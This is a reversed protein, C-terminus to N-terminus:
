ILIDQFINSIPINITLPYIKLFRNKKKKKEFDNECDHIQLIVFKIPNVNSECTRIVSM